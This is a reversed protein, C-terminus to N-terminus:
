GRTKQLAINLRALLGPFSGIPNVVPRQRQVIALANELDLQAAYMVYSTGATGARHAGALCHVLVSRGEAIQQDVWSFYPHFYEIIGSVTDMNKGNCRHYAIPFRLYAFEPDNEHYNPSTPDKCNVIRTIGHKKLVEVSEAATQNGIYVVGGGSPHRFVASVDSWRAGPETAPDLNLATLLQAVRSESGQERSKGGRSSSKSAGEARASRAAAQSSLVQRGLADYDNGDM